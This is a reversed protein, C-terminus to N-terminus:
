KCRTQEGSSLVFLGGDGGAEDVLDAVLLQYFHVAVACLSAKRAQVIYSPVGYKNESECLGDWLMKLSRLGHQFGSDSSSRPRYGSFARHFPCDNDEEKSSLQKRLEECRKYLWSSAYNRDQRMTTVVSKLVELEDYGPIASNIERDSKKRERESISTGEENNRKVMDALKIQCTPKSPVM